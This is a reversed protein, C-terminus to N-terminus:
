TSHPSDIGSSAAAEGATSSLRPPPSPPPPGSGSSHCVFPQTATPPCRRRGGGNGRIQSRTMLPSSLGAGLLGAEAQLPFLDTSPTPSPPPPCKSFSSRSYINTQQKLSTFIMEAGSSVGQINNREAFSLVHTSLCVPLVPACQCPPDIFRHTTAAACVHVSKKTYDGKRCVQEKRVHVYAGTELVGNTKLRDRRTM